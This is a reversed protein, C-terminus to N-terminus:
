QEKGRVLSTRLGSADLYRDVVSKLTEATIGQVQTEYQAVSQAGVGSYVARAYELVRSARTQLSQSHQAATRAAARVVVDTTVGDRRLRALQSDLAAGMEEEKGPSFAAYSLLAGGRTNALNTTYIPFAPIAPDREANGSLLSAVVDLAYRDGISRTAGPFGRVM